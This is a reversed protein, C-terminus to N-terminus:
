DFKQRRTWSFSLSLLCHDIESSRFFYLIFFVKHIGHTIVHIKMSNQCAFDNYIGYWKHFFMRWVLSSLARYTQSLFFLTVWNSYCFDIDTFDIEITQYFHLVLVIRIRICWIRMEVLWTEQKTTQALLTSFGFFSFNHFSYFLRFFWM